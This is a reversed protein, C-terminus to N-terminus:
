DQHSDINWRRWQRTYGVCTSRGWQSSFCLKQSNGFSVFSLQVPFLSFSWTGATLQYFPISKRGLWFNDSTSLFESLIWSYTCVLVFHHPWSFSSASQQRPLPLTPPSFCVCSRSPHPPRFLRRCGFSSRLCPTLVYATNWAFALNSVVESIRYFLM